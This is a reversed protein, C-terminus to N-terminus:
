WVRGCLEASRGGVSVPGLCSPVKWYGGGAFTGGMLGWEVTSVRVFTV